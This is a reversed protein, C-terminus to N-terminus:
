DVDNLWWLTTVCKSNGQAATFCEPSGNISMNDQRIEDQRMMECWYMKNVDDVTTKLCRFM